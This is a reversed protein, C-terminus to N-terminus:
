SLATDPDRYAAPRARPDTEPALVVDPAHCPAVGGQATALPGAASV